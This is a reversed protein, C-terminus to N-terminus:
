ITFVHNRISLDLCFLSHVKKIIFDFVMVVHDTINCSCHYFPIDTFATIFSAIPIYCMHTFLCTAVAYGDKRAREGVNSDRALRAIPIKPTMCIKIIVLFALQSSPYYTFLLSITNRTTTQKRLFLVFTKFRVANVTFTVHLNSM